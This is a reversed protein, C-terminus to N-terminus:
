SLSFAMITSILMLLKRVFQEALLVVIVNRLENHIINVDIGGADKSTARM